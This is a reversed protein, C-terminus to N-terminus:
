LVSSSTISDLEEKSIEGVEFESWDIEEDEAEEREVQQEVEDQTADTEATADPTTPANVEQKENETLNFSEIAKRMTEIEEETGNNFLWQIYANAVVDEKEWSIEGTVNTKNYVNEAVEQFDVDEKAKNAFFRILDKDAQIAITQEGTVRNTETKGKYKDTPNIILVPDTTKSGTGTTRGGTTTPKGKARAEYGKIRADNLRKQEELRAQNSKNRANLEAYRLARDKDKDARRAQEQYQKYERQWDRDEKKDALEKEKLARNAQQAEMTALMSSAGQRGKGREQLGRLFDEGMAKYLGQEYVGKDKNYKDYIEQERKTLQPLADKNMDRRPIVAGRSHSFMQALLGLSDSIAAMRKRKEIDKANPETPEKNTAKYIMELANGQKEPNYGYWYELEQPSYYQLMKTYKEETMGLREHIPKNAETDTPEKDDQQKDNSTTSNDYSTPAVVKSTTVEQKEENSEISGKQKPEEEKRDGVQQSPPPTPTDAKAQKPQENEADTTDTTDSPKIDASDVIKQAEQKAEEHVQKQAEKESKNKRGTLLSKIISM